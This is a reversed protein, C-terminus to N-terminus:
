NNLSEKRSLLEEYVAMTKKLMDGLSFKEKVRRRANKGIKDKKEQSLKLVRLITDALIESDSPEVLWGTINNEIIERSGGHNSSIIPKMMSSAEASVRGFAEPEISTSLVIDAISYVAPMDTLNGCWTVRNELNLKKIKKVMAKSYDKNSDEGGVFLIVFNLNPEKISVRSAADLAIAHGKWKTIRAPLLIIHVNEPVNIKSLIKEKRTETVSKIDFYETDIGRDIQVLKSKCDPFNFRVHDDIFKSITIVKDGSTMVKNYKKKLFFRNGGYTGHFTTVLPIRLDKVIKSFCFAPWRSRIHVIDPKIEDLFKKIKRKATLFNIVGKQKLNMNYHGVGKYKYKEAMEGGSSIIVSNFGRNVLEKAVDLTGREVGGNIKDLAPIIQLINSM